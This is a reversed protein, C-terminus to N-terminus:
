KEAESSVSTRVSSAITARGDGEPGEGGESLASPWGSSGFRDRYSGTPPHGFSFSAVSSRTQETSATSWSSARAQSHSHSTSALPAPQSAPSLPSTSTSSSALTPISLAFTSIPALRPPGASGSASHGGGLPPLIPAMLAKDAESKGSPRPKNSFTSEGFVSRLPPLSSRAPLSRGAARYAMTEMAVDLIDPPSADRAHNPANHANVSSPAPAPSPANFSFPSAAPETTPSIPPLPDGSIRLREFSSSPPPSFISRIFAPALSPQQARSLAPQSQRAPLPSHSPPPSFPSHSFMPQHQVPVKPQQHQPASSTPGGLVASLSPLKMETGNSSVSAISETRIRSAPAGVHGNSEQRPVHPFYLKSPIHPQSPQFPHGKEAPPTLLSQHNAYPSHGPYGAGGYPHGYNVESPLPGLGDEHRVSRSAASAASVFSTRSALSDHSAHRSLEHPNHLQHPSPVAAGVTMNFPVPSQALAHASYQAGLHPHSQSHYPYRHAAYPDITPLGYPYHPHVPVGHGHALPLSHTSSAASAAAAEQAERDRQRKQSQRRNQFWIQVRRASMGIQAGVEERTETSPFRTKALLANLVATQAPTTLTRSRKKAPEKTGPGTTGAGKGGVATSTASTASAGEGAARDNLDDDDGEGDFDDMTMDGMSDAQSEAISAVESPRCADSNSDSVLHALSAKRQSPHVAASDMMDGEAGLISERERERQHGNPPADAGEEGSWGRLAKEREREIRVLESAADWSTRAAERFRRKTGLSGGTGVGKITSASTSSSPDHPLSPRTPFPGSTSPFPGHLALELKAARQRQELEVDDDNSSSAGPSNGDVSLAAARAPESVPTLGNARPPAFLPPETPPPSSGAHRAQRQQGRKARPVSPFFHSPPPGPFANPNGFAMGTIDRLSGPKPRTTADSPSSSSASPIFPSTTSTSM